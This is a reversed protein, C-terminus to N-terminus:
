TSRRIEDINSFRLPARLACRNAASRRRRLRRGDGAAPNSPQQAVRLWGRSPTADSPVVTERLLRVTNSACPAFGAVEGVPILPARGSTSRLACGLKPALCGEQRWSPAASGLPTGGGGVSTAPHPGEASAHRSLEPGGPRTALEVEPWQGIL